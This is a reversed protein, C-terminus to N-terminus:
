GGTRPTLNTQKKGEEKDRQHYPCPCSREFNANALTTRVLVRSAMPERILSPGRAAGRPRLEPASSQSATSIVLLKKKKLAMSRQASYPFLFCAIYSPSQARARMSLQRDHNGVAGLHLNSGRVNHYPRNTPPQWSM